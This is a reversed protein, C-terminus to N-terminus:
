TRCVRAKPQSSVAPHARGDQYTALAVEWEQENMLGSKRFIQLKGTTDIISVFPVEDAKFARVMRQGYPTTSDIHCVVYKKLLESTAAGAPVASRSVSVQAVAAAQAPDAPSADIVVLLPKHEQQAQHWAKSYNDFWGTPTAAAAMAAIAAVWCLLGNM